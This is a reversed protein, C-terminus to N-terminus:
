SVKGKLYYAVAKLLGNKDGNSLNEPDISNLFTVMEQNRTEKSTEKAEEQALWDLAAQQNDELEKLKAEDMDELIKKMYVKVNSIDKGLIIRVITHPEQIALLRVKFAETAALAVFYAEVEAKKLAIKEDQQSDLNDLYDLWEQLTKDQYEM